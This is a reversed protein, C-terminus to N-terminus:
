KRQPPIYEADMYELDISEPTVQMVVTGTATVLSQVTEIEVVVVTTRPLHTEIIAERLCAGAKIAVLHRPRCFGVMTVSSQAADDEVADVATELLHLEM